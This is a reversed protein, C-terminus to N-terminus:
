RVSGQAPINAAVLTALDQMLKPPDVPSNGIHASSLLVTGGARECLFLLSIPRSTPDKFSVRVAAHTPYYADDKRLRVEEWSVPGRAIYYFSQELSMQAVANYATMGENIGERESTGWNPKGHRDLQVPGMKPLMKLLLTNDLVTESTSFNVFNALGVTKLRAILTEDSSSAQDQQGHGQEAADGGRTTSESSGGSFYTQATKDFTSERESLPTPRPVFQAALRLAEAGQEQTMDSAIIDMQKAAEPVKPSALTLWMYAMVLDAPVGYGNNYCAGLNYQAPAHGQEAARQYWIVAQAKDQPVGLGQDYCVGLDYQAIDYGQEAAKRTWTAAQADDKQVGEGNFYCLSLSHQSMADGQEAAKRYWEVAKAANKEVGEGNFYCCGLFFQADKNRKEASKKYWVVAQALDKQVGDGEAYRIATVLEENGDDTNSSFEQPSEPLSQASMGLFGEYFGGPTKLSCGEFRTFPSYVLLSVGIVAITIRKWPTLLSATPIVYTRAARDHLTRGKDKNGVVYGLDLRLWSITKIFNRLIGKGLSIRNGVMTAVQIGMVMKGLTAQLRSSEMIAFYPGIALFVIPIYVFLYAGLFLPLRYEPVIMTSILTGLHEMVVSGVWATAPISISSLICLDILAAAFRRWFGAQTPLTPTSPQVTSPAQVPPATSQLVPVTIPGGCGSCRGQQGAYQDPVQLSKGCQPCRVDIM